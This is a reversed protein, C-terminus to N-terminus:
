RCRRRSTSGDRVDRRRSAARLDRHRLAGHRLAGRPAPHDRRQQRRARHGADIARPRAAEAVGRAFRELQREFEWDGPSTPRPSTRSCARWGSAGAPPAARACPEGADEARVGIRNMGTDIKLHYRLSRGRRRPPRASLARRVRRSYVTPSSTTSSSCAPPAVVSRESLLHLPATSAARRAARDGRRRDRRRAPRRRCAAGAQAVRLAGHGYGDAKVVAM